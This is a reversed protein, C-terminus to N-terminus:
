DVQISRKPEAGKRPISITLVGNKMSASIAEPDADRPIGFSRAFPGCDRELAHFSAAPGDSRPRQGSVALSNATVELVVDKQTIGPLDMEIVYGATTEYVDTAPTWVGCASGEGTRRLDRLREKAEFLEGLGIWPPVHRKAM